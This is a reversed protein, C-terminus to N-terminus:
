ALSSPVTLALASIRSAGGDPTRWPSVKAALTRIVASGAAWRGITSAFRSYPRIRWRPRLVVEM